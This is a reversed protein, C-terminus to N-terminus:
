LFLPFSKLLKWQQGHLPDPSIIIYLVPTPLFAKRMEAESVLDRKGTKELVFDRRGAIESVLDRGM